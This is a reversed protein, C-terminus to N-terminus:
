WIIIYNNLVCTKMSVICRVINCFASGKLSALAHRRAGFQQATIHQARSPEPTPCVSSRTIETGFKISTWDQEIAVMVVEKNSRVKESGLELMSGARPRCTRSTKRFSIVRFLCSYLLLPFYVSYIPYVTPLLDDLSMPSHKFDPLFVVSM